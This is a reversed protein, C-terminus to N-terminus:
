PDAGWSGLDREQLAEVNDFFADAPDVFHRQDESTWKRNTAGEAEILRGEGQLILTATEGTDEWAYESGKGGWIIVSGVPDGAGDLWALQVTLAKGTVRETIARTLHDSPVGSLSVQMPSAELDNNMEPDGFGLLDGAGEFTEGGLQKDGVGNWLRATGSETELEVFLALNQERDGLLAAVAPDISRM